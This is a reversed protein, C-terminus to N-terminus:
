KSLSIFKFKSYKNGLLCVIYIYLRVSTNGFVRMVRAILKRMVIECDKIYYVAFLYLFVRVIYCLDREPICRMYMFCCWGALPSIVRLVNGDLLMELTSSVTYRVKQVGIM